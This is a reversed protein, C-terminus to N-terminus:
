LWACLRVFRVLTVVALPFLKLHTLEETYIVLSQKHPHTRSPLPLAEERAQRHLLIKHNM